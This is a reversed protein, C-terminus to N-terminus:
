KNIILINKSDEKYTEIIDTLEPNLMEKIKPIDNENVDEIILLGNDNLTKSYTNIIFILKNIDSENNSIIIDFKINSSELNIDLPSTNLYLKIRDNNKLSNDIYNKVGIGFLLSNNFYNILYKMYIENLGLNLLLLQENKRRKFLINYINKFNINLEEDGRESKRKKIVFLIDDYIDDRERLDYVEIFNRLHEPAADKLLEIYRISQINQIILIGDDTLLESYIKIFKILNNIDYSCNEIIVNFKKNNNIISMYAEKENMTCIEGNKFYDYWMNKDNNDEKVIELLSIKNDKISTFLIDYENLYSQYLNKKM